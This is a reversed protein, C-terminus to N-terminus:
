PSSSRSALTRFETADLIKEEELGGTRSQSGGLTRDLPYQPSKRRHYLPRPTFSVVGRALESTLFIHIQVDVGGYEKM